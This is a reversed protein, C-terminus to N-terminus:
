KHLMMWVKNRVKFPIMWLVQGPYHLLMVWFRKLSNHNLEKGVRNHGFNGAANIESLLFRGEQEDPECLMLDDSAGCAEKMVWMMAAAFKGLGIGRIQEMVDDFASTPLYKLLYFYDVVYRFGIGEELLHHFAHTLAFVANFVPTTYGFGTERESMQVDKQEYFFRYLRRYQFPNYVWSPRFHVEVPVDAFLMADTHHWTSYGVKCQTRLWALVDERLGDVWIDIDGCQRREPNPYYMAFGVGKLVCSRIGAAKLRSTLESARECHVLYDKKMMQVVGVWQWKVNAPPLQETPLRELGDMIVGTVAQRLAENYLSEWESPSPVRSLKDSTGLSVKLLELFSGM